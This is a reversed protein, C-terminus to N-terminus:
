CNPNVSMLIRLHPIVALRAQSELEVGEIYNGHVTHHPSPTTRDCIVKNVNLTQPVDSAVCSSQYSVRPECVTPAESLSSCFSLANM